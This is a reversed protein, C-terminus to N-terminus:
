KSDLSTNLEDFYLNSRDIQELGFTIKMVQSILKECRCTCILDVVIETAFIISVVRAVGWM